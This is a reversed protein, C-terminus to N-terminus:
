QKGFGATQREDFAMRHPLAVPHEFQLPPAVLAAQVEIQLRPVRWEICPQDTTVAAISAPISGSGNKRRAKGATHSSWSLRASGAVMALIASSAPSGPLFSTSREPESSM